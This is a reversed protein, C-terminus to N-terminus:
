GGPLCARVRVRWRLRRSSLTFSSRLPFRSFVILFIAVRVRPFGKTGQLVFLPLSISFFCFSHSASCVEYAGLNTRGCAKCAGTDGGPSHHSVPAAAPFDGMWRAREWALHQVPACWTHMRVRRKQAHHVQVRTSEREREGENKKEKEKEKKKEREGKKKKQVGM